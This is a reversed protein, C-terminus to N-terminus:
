NFLKLISEIEVVNQIEYRDKKDNGIHIFDINKAEALFRDNNGDGIYVAKKYFDEDCSYEQFYELHAESKRVEESGYIIEFLELIGGIKLANKAIRTPSATTLFLTYNQSLQSIKACVGPFFYVNENIIQFEQLIHQELNKELIIDDYVQNLYYPLPFNGYIFFLEQAKKYFEPTHKQISSLIAKQIKGKTDILTGDLDFILYKKM